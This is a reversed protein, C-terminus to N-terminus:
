TVSMRSTQVAGNSAITTSLGPITNAGFDMGYPTTAIIPNNTPATGGLDIAMLIKAELHDGGPLFSWNKPSHEISKRARRTVFLM